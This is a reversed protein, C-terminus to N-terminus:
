KPRRARKLPPPPDAREPKTVRSEVGQSLKLVHAAHDLRQRENPTLSRYISLLEIEDPMVGVLYDALIILHDRVAPPLARLARLVRRESPTLVDVDDDPRKVLESPTTGVAQAVADLEELKLGFRGNLLNSVWQDGHGLRQGLARGTLNREGLLHRLRTRVRERANVDFSKVDIRKGCSLAYNM